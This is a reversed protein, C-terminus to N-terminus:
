VGRVLPRLLALAMRYDAYYYSALGHLGTNSTGPYLSTYSHGAFTARMHIGEREEFYTEFPPITLTRKAMKVKVHRQIPTDSALLLRV